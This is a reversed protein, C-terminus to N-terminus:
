RLFIVIFESTSLYCVIFRSCFLRGYHYLPYCVPLIYYRSVLAVFCKTEILFYRRLTSGRSPQLSTLIFIYKKIFVYM